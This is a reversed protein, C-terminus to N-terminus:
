KSRPAAAYINSRTVNSPLAPCLYSALIDLPIASNFTADKSAFADKEYSNIIHV